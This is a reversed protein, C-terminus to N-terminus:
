PHKWIRFQGCEIEASSWLFLIELLGLSSICCWLIMILAPLVIDGALTLTYNFMYMAAIDWIQATKCPYSHFSSINSISSQSLLLGHKDRRGIRRWWSALNVLNLLNSFRCFLKESKQGLHSKSLCLWQFIQSIWFIPCNAVCGKLNNASILKASSSDSLFSFCKLQLM